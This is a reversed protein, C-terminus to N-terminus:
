RTGGCQIVIAGPRPARSKGKVQGVVHSLSSSTAEGEDCGWGFRLGGCAVIVVAGQGQEQRVRVWRTVRWYWCRARTDVRCMRRPCHCGVGVWRTVHQWQCRAREDVRWMPCHRHRRTRVWAWRTVCHCHRCHRRVRAEPEDEGQRGRWVHRASAAHKCHSLRPSAAIASLFTHTHAHPVPSPPLWMPQKQHTSDGGLNSQPMYSHWAHPESVRVGLHESLEIGLNKSSNCTLWM